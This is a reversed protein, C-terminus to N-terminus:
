ATGRCLNPQVVAPRAVHALPSAPPCGEVVLPVALGQQTLQVESEQTGICTLRSRCHLV